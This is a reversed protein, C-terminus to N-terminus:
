KRIFLEILHDVIGILVLHGNGYVRDAIGAEVLDEIGDLVCQIIIWPLVVSM